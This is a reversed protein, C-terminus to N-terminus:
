SNRTAFQDYEHDHEDDREEQATNAAKSIADDDDNDNDVVNDQIKAYKVNHYYYYGNNDNSNKKNAIANYTANNNIMSRLFIPIDNSAISSNEDDSSNSLDLAM